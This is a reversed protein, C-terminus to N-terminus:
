AKRGDDRKPPAPAHPETADLLEIAQAQLPEASGTHAATIVRELDAAALARPVIVYAAGAAYMERADQATEAAVIIRATPNLRRLTELLRRNSTGRLFDDSISSVLVTAKEIGAHQLVDMNSIDGYLCRVGEDKLLTHLEPNFDIVSFDCGSRRLLPLLSVGVRHCGVLIISAGGHWDADEGQDDRYPTHTAAGVLLAAIRHSGNVMYTSAACTLLLTLLVLSVIDDGVHNFDNLGLLVLVLAFESAQALHISCLIGTRNDLGMLRLGPWIFIFRTVVVVASLVVAQIVITWTPMQLLLGLAVFLLTVFFDRLSAIKAAVDITYPLGSISVGAILAGMAISFDMQLAALCVVLCWSVASLLLLEPSRSAWKLIPPLAFRAVIVAGAALGLGKLISLAILGFPAGGGLTPQIALAVLAAVDQLLLIALTIRGPLTDIERRDGLIKVVIMTSSFAVAAGVYMAPLGVYGLMLATIWGAFACGTVQLVTTVVAPRGAGLLKKVDIELGVIFLLLALGFEALHLVEDGSKVLRFGLPGILIGAAVYALLLPQRALKALYGLVAAAILCLGIDNLLTSPAAHDPATETQTALFSMWTISVSPFSM